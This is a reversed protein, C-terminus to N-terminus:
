TLMSCHQDTRGVPQRPGVSAPLKVRQGGIVCLELQTIFCLQTTVSLNFHWITSYSNGKKLDVAKQQVREVSIYARPRLPTDDKLLATRKGSKPIQIAKPHRSVCEPM